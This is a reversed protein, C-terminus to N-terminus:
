EIPEVRNKKLYATIATREFRIGRAVKVFALLRREQLRRVTSVSAKLLRAVEPITLLESGSGIPTNEFLQESPAEITHQNVGKLLKSSNIAPEKSPEIHM